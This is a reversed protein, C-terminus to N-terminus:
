QYESVGQIDPTKKAAIFCNIKNTNVSAKSAPQLAEGTAGGADGVGVIGVEVAVGVLVAMGLRVGVSVCIGVAVGMGSGILMAYM